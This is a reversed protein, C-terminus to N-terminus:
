PQIPREIRELTARKYITGPIGIVSMIRYQASPTTATATVSGVQCSTAGAELSEVLVLFSGVGSAVVVTGDGVVSGGTTLAAVGPRRYKVTNTAGPDGDILVSFGTGDKNDTITIIPVTPM